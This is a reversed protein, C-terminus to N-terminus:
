GDRIASEWLEREARALDRGVRVHADVVLTEGSEASYRPWDPLGAGNSDGTRAFAIVTDSWRQALDRVVPDNPDHFARLGPIASNYCRPGQAPQCGAM